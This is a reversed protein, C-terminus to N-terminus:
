KRPALLMQGVARSRRCADLQDALQSQDIIWEGTEPDRKAQEELADLAGPPPNPYEPCVGM